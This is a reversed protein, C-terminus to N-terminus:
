QQNRKREADRLARREERSLPAPPLENSDLWNVTDDTGFKVGPTPVSKGIGDRYLPNPVVAQVAAQAFEPETSYVDADPTPTGVPEPTRRINRRFTFYLQGDRSENGSCEFGWSEIWGRNRSVESAPVVAIVNCCDLNAESDKVLTMMVKDTIIEVTRRIDM